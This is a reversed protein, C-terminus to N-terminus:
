KSSPGSLYRSLCWDPYGTNRGVNSHLVEGFRVSFVGTLGPRETRVGQLKAAPAQRGPTRAAELKLDFIVRDREAFGVFYICSKFHERRHSHLIDDEPIYFGLEYKVPLV